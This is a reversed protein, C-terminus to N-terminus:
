LAYDWPLFQQLQQLILLIVNGKSEYFPVQFIKFITPKYENEVEKM